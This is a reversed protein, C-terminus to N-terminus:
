IMEVSILQYTDADFTYKVNNVLRDDRGIHYDNKFKILKVNEYVTVVRRGQDISYAYIEECSPLTVSSTVSSTVSYTDSDTYSQSLHVANQMQDNMTKWGDVYVPYNKDSYSNNFKIEVEVIRYDLNPSFYPNKDINWSGTRDDFVEITKGEGWAKIVEAHVHKSM